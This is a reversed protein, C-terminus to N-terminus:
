ADMLHRVIEAQKLSYFGPSTKTFKRRIKVVKNGSYEITDTLYGKHSFVLVYPKMSSVNNLKFVGLSDTITEFDSNLLKVTCNAVPSNGKDTVKGEIQEQCFLLSPFLLLIAAVCFSKM